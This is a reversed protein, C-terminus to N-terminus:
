NTRDALDGGTKEKNSSNSRGAHDVTSGGGRGTHVLDKVPKPTGPKKTVSAVGGSVGGEEAVSNFYTSAVEVKLGELVLVVKEALSEEVLTKFASADKNQAHTVFSM